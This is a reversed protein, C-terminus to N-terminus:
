FARDKCWQEIRFFAGARFDQHEWTRQLIKSIMMKMMNMAAEVKGNVVVVIMFISM